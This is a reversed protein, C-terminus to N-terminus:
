ARVIASSGLVWRIYKGDAFRRVNLRQTKGLNSRNEAFTKSYFLTSTIRELIGAGIRNKLTFFSSNRAFAACSSSASSPTAGFARSATLTTKAAPLSTKTTILIRRHKYGSLLLGDYGLWGDTYVTAQSLVQGQIISELEARSCSKVVGTFVKGGRKLLGIVPTKGGAGRGRRGRVRRPGFYSEDIEVEGTFPRAEELALEVVRRRLVEYIRQSTKRNVVALKSASLAAVDACFMKLLDKFKRESIRADFIYRNTM